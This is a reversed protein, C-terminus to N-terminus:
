NRTPITAQELRVNEYGLRKAVIRYDFWGHAPKSDLTVGRVTFGNPKKATVFLLLPEESVPTLFVHYDEQLNVTEAFIADFHINAAGNVLSAKGFDEFWVNPSEIAYLLRQDHTATKVVASKTGSAWLDGNEDITMRFADTGDFVVFKANADNNDDDLDIYADKDCYFGMHGFCFIEGINGGLLLDGVRDANSGDNGAALVGWGNDSRGAVGYGSGANFGYVGSKNAAAAEGSVGDGSSSQAYVGNAGSGFAVAHLGEYNTGLEAYNGTTGHTGVVAKGTGKNTIWFGNSASTVEGYYPLEMGATAPTQWVVNGGSTTLVQGDAPGAAIKEPTVAGFVINPTHVANDVLSMTRISYPSSTLPLRPALEPNTGVQLSIWYPQDFPLTLPNLGGLIVDFVGKNIFVPHNELWLPAGGTETNFLRFILNYNGDPVIAGSADTLVGQYSLVRPIQAHSVTFAGFIIILLLGIKKLERLKM